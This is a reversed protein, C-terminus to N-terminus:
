VCSFFISAGCNDFNCNRILDGGGVVTYFLNNDGFANMGVLLLFFLIATIIYALNRKILSEM